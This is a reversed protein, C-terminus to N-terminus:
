AAVTCYNVQPEYLINNGNIIRQRSQCSHLSFLIRCQTGGYGIEPSLSSARLTRTYDSYRFPSIRDNGQLKITPDIDKIGILTKVMKKAEYGPVCSSPVLHRWFESNRGLIM